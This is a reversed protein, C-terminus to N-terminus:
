SLIEFGLGDDTVMVSVTACFLKEKGLEVIAIWWHHVKVDILFVEHISGEM